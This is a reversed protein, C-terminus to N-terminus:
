AVHGAFRTHDFIEPSNQQYVERIMRTPYAYVGRFHKNPADKM